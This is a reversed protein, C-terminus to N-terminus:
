DRREPDTSLSRVSLEPSWIKWIYTLADVHPLAPLHHLSSRSIRLEALSPGQPRDKLATSAPDIAWLKRDLARHHLTCLPLGNRADDCGSDEKPCLHAADVLGPYAIECVACAPGYRHFVKMAFAQQGPRAKGAAKKPSNSPPDKLNFPVDDTEPLAPGAPKEGFGILFIAAGDDFDEVWALRVARFSSGQPSPLITFIPLQFYKAWKMSAVENADTSGIRDTHPYHYLLADDSLDDPYSRGTHLVSVAVGQGDPTLTKTRDKDAWIGAQGRYIGFSRVEGATLADTNLEQLSAWIETRLALESAVPPPPQAATTM